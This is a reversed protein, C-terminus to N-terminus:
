QLGHLAWVQLFLLLCVLLWSLPSPLTCPDRTVGAGSFRGSYLRPFKPGQCGARQRCSFPHERTVSLLYCAGKLQMVLSLGQMRGQVKRARACLMLARGSYGADREGEAGLTSPLARPLVEGASLGPQAPALRHEM